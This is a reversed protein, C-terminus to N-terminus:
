NELSLYPLFKTNLVEIQERFWKKMEGREKAGTAYDPTGFAEDLMKTQLDVAKHYIEELYEATEQKLLFRAANTSTWYDIIMNDTVEGQIM